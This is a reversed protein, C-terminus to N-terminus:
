IATRVEGRSAVNCWLRSYESRMSTSRFTGQESAARSEFGTVVLAYYTKMYM